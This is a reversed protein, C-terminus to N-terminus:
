DGTPPGGGWGEGVLPSPTQKRKRGLLGAAILWAASLPMALFALLHCVGMRNTIAALTLPWLEPSRNGLYTTTWWSVPYLQAAVDSASTLGMPYFPSGTVVANRVYWYGGCVLAGLTWAVAVRGATRWGGKGGRAFPPLPPTASVLVIVAWAVAAYGLAFWKVGALLGLSLGGLVLDPRRGGHLYRLGYSLAALFFGAVALDNKQNILHQVLVQHSVVALAALHRMPPSLGICRGLEVAAAALLIAAPLNILSILFDGSFPAVMWLGILENNGPFSWHACDPAYLSGAHLWQVIMPLHYMLSDWDMPFRLLGSTVVHGIWLSVIVGWLLLWCRQSDAAAPMPADSPRALRSDWRLAIAALGAVGILLTYGALAGA